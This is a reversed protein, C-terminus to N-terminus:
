ILIQYFLDALSTKGNNGTVAIIRKTKLKFFKSSIKSLFNRVNNVKIVPLDKNEYKSKKSCVIVTAGRKIADNIYKEGNLKFGKIAFFIYGKKIKKSNTSLGKIWINKKLRSNKTLKKLFM